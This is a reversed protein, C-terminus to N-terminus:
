NITKSRITAGHRSVGASALSGLRCPVRPTSSHPVLLYVYMETGAKGVGESFSRWNKPL